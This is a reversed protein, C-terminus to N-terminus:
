GHPNFELAVGYAVEELAVGGIEIMKRGVEVAGMHRYFGTAPNERLVWLAMAAYGAEDLSLSLAEFLRRGTGRGQATRLLYIAYLEADYGAIEERLRGGGAFGVVGTEDEAVFLHMAGGTLLGRWAEARQALDMQDLYQSPVIGAYTTRWSEIQVHAITAADAEKVQRIKCEM